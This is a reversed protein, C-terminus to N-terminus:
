CCWPMCGWSNGTPVGHHHHISENKFDETVKFNSVLAPGYLTLHDAYLSPYSSMSISGPELIAELFQKSSGGSDDFVHKELQEASFQESMYLAVDLV